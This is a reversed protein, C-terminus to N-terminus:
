ASRASACLRLPASFLEGLFYCRVRTGIAAIACSSRSDGSARLVTASEERRCNGVRLWVVKPPFGYLFSRQRFDDDKTVITLGLAAAHHWIVEDSASRLQVDRVHASAPFVEALDRVLAPSLNEVFLLRITM